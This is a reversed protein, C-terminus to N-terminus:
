LVDVDRSLAYDSADGEMSVLHKDSYRSPALKRAAM